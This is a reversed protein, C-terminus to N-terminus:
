QLGALYAAIDAVEAETLIPQGRWAAAVDTLGEVIGYAPMITDPMFPRPDTLIAALDSQSWRAGVGALSPGIDGQAEEPLGLGPIVHCITCNGKETAFILAAGRQADQAVVPQALMLM